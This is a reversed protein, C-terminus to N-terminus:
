RDFDSGALLHLPPLRNRCDPLVRVLCEVRMQMQFQSPILRKRRGVPWRRVALVLLPHTLTVGLRRGEDGGMATQKDRLPLLRKNHYILLAVLHTKILVPTLFALVLDAESLAFPPFRRLAVVLGWLTHIEDDAFVAAFEVPSVAGVVASM